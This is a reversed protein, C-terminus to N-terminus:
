APPPRVLLMPQHSKEMVARTVSGLVTEAILTHGKTGLCILDPDFSRVAESIAAAPDSAMLVEVETEVRNAAADPPVLATLKDRAAAIRRHNSRAAKKEPALVHILKVAGGAPLAAFAWPVARDGTESFDTAVLVRSLDRRHALGHAMTATVPVCAVNTLAHRLVGRSVSVHALRKFGHWQHTGMVILDVDAESAAEVLAADPRGWNPQVKVEVEGELFDAARRRLDRRMQRRVSPLDATSGAMKVRALRHDDPPWNIHALTVACPGIKGLQRVWAIASDSSLTFDAAVMIKLQKQEQVWALLREPDRVVLTPAPSRQAIRESVSGITWRDFATKSVSSVVVLAHAAGEVYEVVAKEAWKGHLLVEKVAMATQRLRKAERALQDAMPRLFARFANTGETYAHAQDAVHILVLETELKLAIAAAVDAAGKANESFDTACVIKATPVNM